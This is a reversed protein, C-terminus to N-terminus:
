KSSETLSKGTQNLRFKSPSIGKYAHFNASFTSVDVWGLDYAVDAIADKSTLLRREAAELRRRKIYRAPTDDFVRRFERKFTSLSMHCLFALQEMSVANFLNNEVTQQFTLNVKGFVESLLKRLNTSNESKLLILVLEKLKLVALDEDVAAPNEFYLAIHQMYQTVMANGIVPKAQPVEDLTLFSPVENRYIEKLLEPYLFVVMAECCQDPSEAGFRQVYRGCQKLVANGQTTLSKGRADFSVLSGQVLYFFCAVDELEGEFTFPPEMSARQFLPKGRFPIIQQDIM